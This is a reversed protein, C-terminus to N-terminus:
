AAINDAHRLQQNRWRQPKNNLQPKWVLEFDRDATINEGITSIIYRSESTQNINIRHYSSNLDYLSVGADLTIHIRIPKNNLPDTETFVSSEDDAALSLNKVSSSTTHYRPGVVMPFRLRYSNDKYDLVQQFEFEITIEEGPAINALSTTFVNPRQQEILSAKKGASKAKEYLKKATDRPKVQGEIIRQGIILRFHDVAAKEPLPFVYIGEAWLSSSNKFRQQIKARAIPGTIQYDVDTHLQM